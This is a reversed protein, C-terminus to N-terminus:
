PKKSSSNPGYAALLDTMEAKLQHSRINRTRLVGQADLLYTTPVSPVKYWILPESDWAADGLVNGPWRVGNDKLGALWEVETADVSYSMIDFGKEKYEEYLKNLEAIEQRSYECFSGWFFLLTMKGRMDKLYLSDGQPTIGGLGPAEWRHWDEGLAYLEDGIFQVMNSEPLSSSLKKYATSVFHYNADMNISLVAFTSLVPFQVTDAFEHMFGQYALLSKDIEAEQAQWEDPRTAKNIMSMKRKERIYQGFLKTRQKVMGRLIETELNGTLSSKGLSDVRGDFEILDMQPIIPFGVQKTLQLQYVANKEGEGVFSFKGGDHIVMSDVPVLQNPFVQYLRVMGGKAEHLTGRVEFQNAERGNGCSLFVTLLLTAFVKLWANQTM